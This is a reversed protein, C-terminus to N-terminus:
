IVMMWDQSIELLWIDVERPVLHLHSRGVMSGHHRHEEGAGWRLEWRLLTGIPVQSDGLAPQPGQFIGHFIWSPHNPTGGHCRPFSWTQFIQFYRSKSRSSNFFSRVVRKGDSSDTSTQIWPIIGLNNYKLYKSALSHNQNTTQFM